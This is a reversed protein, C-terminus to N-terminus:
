DNTQLYAVGLSEIKVVRTRTPDSVLSVAIEGTAGAKGTLRAFVVERGGGTLDIGLAVATPLLYEVDNPGLGGYTAGVFKIIRDSEFQVGYQEGVAGASSLTAARAEALFALATEATDDLVRQEYFRSFPIIAVAALLGVIAVAVLVEVLSLGRQDPLM